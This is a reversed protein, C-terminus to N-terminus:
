RSMNQLIQAADALIEDDTQTTNKPKYHKKKYDEFSVFTQENMHPLEALWKQWLKDEADKELANKILDFFTDTPMELIFNM